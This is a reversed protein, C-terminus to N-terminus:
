CHSLFELVAAAFDLFGRPDSAASPTCDKIAKRRGHRQIHSDLALTFPSSYPIAVACGQRGALPSFALLSNKGFSVFGAIICGMCRGIVRRCPRLWLFGMFVRRTMKATMIMTQITRATESVWNPGCRSASSIEAAVRVGLGVNVAVAVGVLVNVGEGVGDGDFVGVGVGVEVLVGGGVSVGVGM